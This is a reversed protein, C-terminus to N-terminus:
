GQAIRGSEQHEVKRKKEEDKIVIVYRVEIKMTKTSHMM